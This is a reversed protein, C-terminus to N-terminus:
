TRIFPSALVETLGERLLRSLRAAFYVGLALAPLVAERWTGWLGVPLWRLQLGVVLVLLPALVFSPVGVGAVMLGTALWDPWRGRYWAGAVGAPIGLALAVGLALTGLALSVPLAQALLDNVSHHRYKLSPGLDGRALQGLFRLYQRPLPEDLHYRARVAAEIEPSAPARERDFPGGPAARMLFFTLTAVLLVLPPMWLLRSLLRRM